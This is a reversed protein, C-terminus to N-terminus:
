AVDGEENERKDEYPAVHRRYFEQKAAELVGIARNYNFYKPQYLGNLIRTIIYNIQGDVVETHQKKLHAILPELLRDIEPRQSKVIYPM